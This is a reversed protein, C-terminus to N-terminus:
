IKISRIRMYFIYGQESRNHGTKYLDKLQLEDKQVSSYTYLNNQNWILVCVYRKIHKHVNALKMLEASRTIIGIAM